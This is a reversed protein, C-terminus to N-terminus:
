LMFQRPYTKRSTTMETVSIEQAIFLKTVSTDKATFETVELLSPLM